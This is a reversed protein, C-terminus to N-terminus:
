YEERMFITTRSRDAETIVWVVAGGIPYSSLIRWGRVVSRENELWDERCLEGWDGTAHRTVLAVPTTDNAALHALAAPTSACVGLDFRHRITTIM